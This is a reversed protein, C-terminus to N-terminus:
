RGGSRQTRKNAKQGTGKRSAKRTTTRKRSAHRTPQTLRRSQSRAMNAVGGATDSAVKIARNVSSTVQEAVRSTAARRVQNQGGRVAGAARQVTRAGLGIARGALTATQELLGASVQHWEEAARNNVKGEAIETLTVDANKEEKLTDELLRAVEPEGLVTAYTRATGYSAIEYHEVKQASTIMVADRLAGEATSTVVTQGERILGHMAECRKARPSEGLREFAQKLRDIHTETETLHHKFAAGLAPTAARATFDALVKTLQQEADLLDKLETILHTRLSQLAAV